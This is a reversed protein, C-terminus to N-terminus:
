VKVLVNLPHRARLWYRHQGLGGLWCRTLVEFVAVAFLCRVIVGNTCSVTTGSCASGSGIGVVRVPSCDLGLAVDVNQLVVGIAGLM